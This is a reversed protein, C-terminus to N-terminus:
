LTSLLSYCRYMEAGILAKLQAINPCLANLLRLQYVQFSYPKFIFSYGSINGCITGGEPSAHFLEIHHKDDGSWSVAMCVVM